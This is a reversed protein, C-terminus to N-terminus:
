RTGYVCNLLVLLRCLAGFGYNRPLLDTASLVMRIIGFWRLWSALFITGWNEVILGLLENLNETFVEVIDIYCFSWWM